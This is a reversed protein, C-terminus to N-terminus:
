AASYFASRAAERAQYARGSQEAEHDLQYLTAYASEYAAVVDPSALKRCESFVVDNRPAAAYVASRSSELAKLAKLYRAKFPAPRTM